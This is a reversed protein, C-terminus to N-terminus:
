RRQELLAEVAKETPRPLHIGHLDDVKVWRFESGPFASASFDKLSELELGHVSFTIKHKTITRTLQHQAFPRLKKPLAKPEEAQIQWPIDWMGALWEKAPRRALLIKEQHFLLWGEAQLLIPAVKKAKVPIKEAVGAKASLCYPEVPCSSCKPNKPSCFIRSLDMLAQNIEGASGFEVLAGGLKQLKARGEKKPNAYSEIWRSLVRELNGDLAIEKQGFAMSAIASATYDGIGKLSLLQAKEQPIKGGFEAVIQKAASQLNRARSYYGLGAWLNLLRDEEAAALDQVTPFNSLFREFYPIVTEVRTQQLMIESIWIRYPDKSKRWPLDRKEQQYWHLLTRHVKALHKQVPVGRQVVTENV